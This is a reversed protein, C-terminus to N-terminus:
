RTAIETSETYENVSFKGLGRVFKGKHLFKTGPHNIDLALGNFDKM